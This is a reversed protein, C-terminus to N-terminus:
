KHFTKGAKAMDTLLQPPRFQEGFQDAYRSMTDHFTQLGVTDMYRFPGGTQPAFGIGFVAAIDGSQADDIVGDQLCWAAELIFRGILRQQIDEETLGTDRQLPKILAMAEPNVTKKKGDHLFFGKKTKKGLWQKDMFTQMLVLPDEHHSEMRRGLDASSLFSAVHGAVDIGVEDALTIPGVPMGFAKMAKDMQELGAGDRILATTEILFPGLCRNVYFGPVDKVVVCTKGQRTGVDVARAAVQPDTGEHTIIELLPMQPVPSFYHMGVVNQPRKSAAAIDRIPLASTNTAFVAHEPLHQEVQEIVRHKLALDEFVAEIVMDCKRFHAGWNDKDTLPIVRSTASDFEYKTMRRRKVKKQLNDEIYKEGRGIGGMDKDKLLVRFGKETSVQAIGAGMLGAGLVAVTEDRRPAKGFKSKKMATMGNFISILAASESTAALESFRRAEYQLARDMDGLKLGEEVCDLIAFPSPYLGNTAKQVQKRAQDFLVRRGVTTDELAWNFLSKKKQKRKLTGAALQEACMVALDELAAPDCVQDVLGIRRAKDPRVNAGTTMMKVAEQLGVLPHLRQTGGFGPLLGLKVEPLGLVTKRDTTAIRYDCHLAWELGGGLAAGNIAAVMPLKLERMKRFTEHGKMCIDRLESKDEIADIMKIDAGAIFNDKKASMFVISKIAGNGRIESEFFADAEQRLEESITNMRGPADMRIVAVGDGKVELDEFYTWKRSPELVEAGTDAPVADLWRRSSSVSRVLLHRSPRFLAAPARLM